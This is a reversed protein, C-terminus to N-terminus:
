ISEILNKTEGHVVCPMKVVSEELTRKVWWVIQGINDQAYKLIVFLQFARLASKIFGVM